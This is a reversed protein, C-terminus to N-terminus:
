DLWQFFLQSSYSHVFLSTFGLPARQEEIGPEKRKWVWPSLLPCLTALFSLEPSVVVQAETTGKPIGSPVVGLASLLLTGAGRRPM